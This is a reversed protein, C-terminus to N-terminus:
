DDDWNPPAKFAAKERAAQAGPPPPPLKKGHQQPYEKCRAALFAGACRLESCERADQVAEELTELGGMEEMRRAVKGWWDRYGEGDNAVEILDELDFTKSSPPDSRDVRDVERAQASSRDVASGEASGKASQLITSGTRGSRPDPQEPDHIRNTGPGTEQEVPDHIRNTATQAHAPIRAEYAYRGGSGGQFNRHVSVWGEKEAHKLAERVTRENLRTMTALRKHTPWAKARGERMHNRLALLVLTVTSDLKSAFVANEWAFPGPTESDGGQPRAKYRSKGM